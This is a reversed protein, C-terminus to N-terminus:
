KMKEVNEMNFSLSEFKEEDVKLQGISISGQGVYFKGDTWKGKFPSFYHLTFKKGLAIIQLIEQVEKITLDTASYSYQEVTFLPKVNNSGGQTRGSDTSYKTEWSWKLGKDPQKIVVGNMKIKDQM